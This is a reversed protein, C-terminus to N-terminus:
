GFEGIPLRKGIKGVSFVMTEHDRRIVTVPLWFGIRAQVGKLNHIEGTVLTGTLESRYRTPIRSFSREVDRALQVRFRGSAPDFTVSTVTGPILGPPLDHRSLVARVEESPTM